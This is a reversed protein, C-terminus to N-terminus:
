EHTKLRDYDGIDTTGYIVYKGDVVLAPFYSLQYKSARIIGNVQNALADKLEETVFRAGDEENRVGAAKMQGNAQQLLQDGAAVHYVRVTPDVLSVNNTTFLEFSQAYVSVSSLCTIFVVLYRM